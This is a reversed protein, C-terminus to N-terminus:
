FVHNQALKHWSMLYNNWLVLSLKLRSCVSSPNSQEEHCWPSKCWFVMTLRDTTSINWKPFATFRLSQCDWLWAALMALFPFQGFVDCAALTDSENHSSKPSYVPSSLFCLAPQFYHWHVQPHKLCYVTNQQLDKYSSTELVVRGSMISFVLFTECGSKLGM